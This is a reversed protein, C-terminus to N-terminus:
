IRGALSDDVSAYVCGADLISEWYTLAAKWGSATLLSKGALILLELGM